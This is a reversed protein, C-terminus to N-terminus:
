RAPLRIHLQSGVVRTALLSLPQDAPGVVVEGDPDFRSDHCPCHYGGRSPAVNCGRHTCVLLLARWSHLNDGVHDDGASTRLADIAISSGLVDIYVISTATTSLSDLPVRAVNDVVDARIFANTAACGVASLACLSACGKLFSRRPISTRM